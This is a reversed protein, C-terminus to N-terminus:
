PTRKALWRDLGLLKQVPSVLLLGHWMAMMAYSWPWEGPVEALGLGLNLSMLLGLLAAPRTRFGSLLLLGAVLEALFVLWAFLTFNPIIVASVLDAYAGLTPHQVMLNLWDRLGNMGAPPVFDPPLKWRLSILWLLGMLSRAGSLAPWFLSTLDFRKSRVSTM